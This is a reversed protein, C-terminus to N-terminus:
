VEADSAEEEPTDLEYADLFALVADHLSGGDERYVKIFRRYSNTLVLSRPILKHFNNYYEVEDYYEPDHRQFSEGKLAEVDEKLEEIFIKIEREAEHCALLTKDEKVQKSNYTIFM